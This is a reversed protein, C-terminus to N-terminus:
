RSQPTPVRWGEGTLWLGLRQLPSRELAIQGAPRSPARRRGGAQGAGQDWMREHLNRQDVGRDIVYWGGVALGGLCTTPQRRVGPRHSRVRTGWPRLPITGRDEPYWLRPTGAGLSGLSGSRSSSVPRNTAPSPTAAKASGVISAGHGVLTRTPRQQPRRYQDADTHGAAEVLDDQVLQQAPMMEVVPAALRGPQDGVADEM